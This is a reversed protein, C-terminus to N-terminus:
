KCYEEWFKSTFLKDRDSVIGLPTSYRCEVEKYFIKVFGVINLHKTTPVLITFKTYRYVIVLLTDVPSRNFLNTELLGTVFDVSV